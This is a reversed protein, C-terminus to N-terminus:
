NKRETTLRTAIVAVVFALWPVVAVTVLLAATTVSM